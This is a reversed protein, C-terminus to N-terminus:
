RATTSRKRITREYCGGTIEIMYGSNTDGVECLCQCSDKEPMWTARIMDDKCISICINEGQSETIIYSPQDQQDMKDIRTKEWMLFSVCCVLVVIGILNYQTPIIM